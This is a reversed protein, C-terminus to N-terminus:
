SVSAEARTGVEKCLRIKQWEICQKRRGGVSFAKRPMVKEVFLAAYKLVVNKDKQQSIGDEWFSACEVRVSIMRLM